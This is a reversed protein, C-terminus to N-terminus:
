ISINSIQHLNDDLLQRLPFSMFPFIFFYWSWLQWLSLKNHTILQLDNVTTQFRLVAITLSWRIGINLLLGATSVAILAQFYFTFHLMAVLIYPLFSFIFQLCFNSWQNWVQFVLPISLGTSSPFWLKISPELFNWSLNFSLQILMCVIWCIQVAELNGIFTALDMWNCTFVNSNFLDKNETSIWFQVSQGVGVM